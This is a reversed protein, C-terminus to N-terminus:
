SGGRDRAARVYVCRQDPLVRRDISGQEVLLDLARQLSGGNAEVSMQPLWWRLIGEASDAADPHNSLYATIERALARISEDDDM